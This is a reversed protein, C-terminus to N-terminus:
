EEVIVVLRINSKKNDDGTISYVVEYIGPTKTDVPNYIEIDDLSYEFEDEQFEELEELDYERGLYQIGEIYHNPKFDDGAKLYIMYESLLVRPFSNEESPDFFEVTMPLEAIDGASNTVSFIYKCDFAVDNMVNEETSFYINDTLDGDLCDEVTLQDFKIDMATMSIRLPAELAFRPSHYDKYIVDRTVKSVNNDEDFAVLTAQRRGKEIFNSLSEVVLTDTVDGDINDQAHVGNLIAEREDGISITISDADMSIEPGKTDRIGSTKMVAVAFFMLSVIFFVIIIRQIVRIM